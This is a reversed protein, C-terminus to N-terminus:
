WSILWLELTTPSHVFKGFDPPNVLFHAFEAQKVKSLEYECPLDENKILHNLTTIVEPPPNDTFHRVIHMEEEYYDHDDDENGNFIPRLNVNYTGKLPIWVVKYGHNSPM